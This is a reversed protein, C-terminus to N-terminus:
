QCACTNNLTNRDTITCKTTGPPSQLSATGRHVAGDFTLLVRRDPRNDQITVVCGRVIAIGTGSFTMGNCCFTYAGSPSFLMVNTPVSDDQLCAAFLTVSFSCSATNGSADTATCTVTTTGVPFTSGSPPTCATTVGPCNDSATPAPFTVTGSTALPCTQAAVATVPAPCTITPPQTDQVTVTFSCTASVQRTTELEFCGITGTDGAVTDVVTLIWAGNNPSGNHISLGSQPMFTGAFPATGASIPTAASDDFVTKTGSCDNAGTGYNDGSGGNGNSLANGSTAHSLGIVLNSDFTHDLRIRVNVDTVPGTDPVNITVSAGTPNNDPIPVAINGSSYVTTISQATSSSCTVTTTGVPFFSGSAPTCTVTGCVGTTTPAPYNVVAGCQNPDNSQSVDTPCTIICAQDEISITDVNWGTSATSCDTALRWRLKVNQGAAAAPLNAATTIYGGSNGSWAQRGAIPSLFNTSITDTYGGQTFSGGATVIDTFAGGNISIELVGGDFTDELNFQHRFTVVTTATTIAITPSDLSNDTVCSPDNHFASNPATDSSTNVTTWNTGLTCLPGGVTCDGDGNIFSTTWGAPLAPPTVGDFNESFIVAQILHPDDGAIPKLAKKEILTRTGTASHAIFTGGCPEGSAQACQHGEISAGDFTRARFDAKTPERGVRLDQRAFTVILDNLGNGDVDESVVRYKGAGDLAVATGAFTVTSPDVKLADFDDRSLIALRMLNSADKKAGKVPANPLVVVDAVLAESSQGAKVYWSQDVNPGFLAAIFLVIVVLFLFKNTNKSMRIAKTGMEEGQILKNETGLIKIRHAGSLVLSPGCSRLQNNFQKHYCGFVTSASKIV